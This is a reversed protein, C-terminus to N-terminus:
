TSREVGSISGIDGAHQWSGGLFDPFNPKKNKKLLILRIETLGTVSCWTLVVLNCM